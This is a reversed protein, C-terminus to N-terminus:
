VIRFVFLQYAMYLFALGALYGALVRPVRITILIIKILLAAVLPVGLVVLLHLLLDNIYPQLVSFDIEM